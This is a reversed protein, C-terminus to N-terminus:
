QIYQNGNEDFTIEFVTKFRPRAEFKFPSQVIGSEHELLELGKDRSLIVILMAFLSAFFFLGFVQRGSCCMIALVGVRSPFFRIAWVHLRSFLFFFSNSLPKVVHRKRAEGFAPFQLILLVQVVGEGAPGHARRLILSLVVWKQRPLRFDFIGFTYDALVM